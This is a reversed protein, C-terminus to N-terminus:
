SSALHSSSFFRFVRIIKGTLYQHGTDVAQLLIYNSLFFLSYSGNLALVRLKTEDFLCVYSHLTSLFFAYLLNRCRYIEHSTDLKSSCIYAVYISHYLCIGYPPEEAIIVDTDINAHIIHGDTSRRVTGKIGM